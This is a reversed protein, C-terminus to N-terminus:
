GDNDMILGYYGNRVMMLCTDRITQNNVVIIYDYIKGSSVMSKDTIKEALLVAFEAGPADPGIATSGTM